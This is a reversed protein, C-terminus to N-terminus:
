GEPAPEGDGGGNDAPPEEAPAPEETPQAPCSGEDAALQGNWCTVSPPCGSEDAAQSGDWCTVPEPTPQAPCGSEDYAMQGNWCQYSPEPTPTPTPEPTPTQEPTPTPTPAQTPEPTPTPAQTPKPTPTPTSEPTPTPTPEPTEDPEEPEVASGIATCGAIPDGEFGALCTCNGNSDLQTNAGCGANSAEEEQKEPPVESPIIAEPYIDYSIVPIQNEWNVSWQIRSTDTSIPSDLNINREIARATDALSGQWVRYIYISMELNEDWLGSSYGTVRSTQIDFIREIHATDYYRNAKQMAFRVFETMQEISFNTQINNGAAEIVKLFTNVDRTRMIKRMIAEIVQQQHEQRAFDGTAFLHRERAFALAQEGNLVVNEGAPVYVTYHGREADSSQGVFEVPSNVVVGGLADVIEVVGKFNTDVYYDIEVGTLNQITQILCERSSANASNLKAYGGGYCYIPVYSDRALSSMTVRMSVPNVSCLIMTDSLGDANGILLVTFPEKTIDKDAGLTNAVTVTEEFDMISKTKELLDAMSAENGFMSIYNTPLVACDINGNFLALLESSYDQFEEISANIGASEIQKRGLTGTHTGKALGVTKGELQIIDTILYSGDDSFVVFSASVSEETTKATIKGVSSNVRSLAYTGGAGFLVVLALLVMGTRYLATSRKTIARALILHLVVLLALAVLNILLFVPRSISAFQTSTFMTYIVGADALLTLVTLIINMPISGASGSSKTKKNSTQMRVPKPTEPAATRVAEEQVNAQASGPMKGAPRRTRTRENVTEPRRVARVNAAQRAAHSNTEAAGGAPYERTEASVNDYGHMDPVVLTEDRQVRDRYEDKIPMEPVPRKRNESM